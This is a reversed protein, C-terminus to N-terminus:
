SKNLMRLSAKRGYRRRPNNSKEQHHKKMTVKQAVLQVLRLTELHAGSELTYEIASIGSEDEMIAANPSGKLLTKINEYFPALECAIHLPTKGDEDQIECAEPHSDVLVKIVDTDAGIGAALHLPTRGLSDQSSLASPCLEVMRIFLDVPANLSACAHLVTVGSRSDKKAEAVLNQFTQEGQPDSFFISEIQGWDNSKILHFLLNLYTSTM